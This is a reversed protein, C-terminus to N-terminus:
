RASGATETTPAETTGEPVPVEPQALRIGAYVMQRMGGSFRAQRSQVRGGYHRSIELGFQIRNLVPTLRSRRCHELYDEFLTDKSITSAEDLMTNEALYLRATNSELLHRDTARTSLAPIRFHGRETLRRLGDMSRNFIGPLEEGLRAELGRDIRDAPVAWNFPIIVLRRRLGSSRDMFQPIENCAFILRATPKLTIGEPRHKIDVYIPDGGTYMKLYEESAKDSGSIEGAINALKGVTNYLHFQRGFLDLPVHSVNERGLLRELVRLCVGKGNQGEGVLIVAHQYRYDQIACYGMWETWFDMREQDGEFVEELFADWRPCTATHDYRFPLAITSFWYPNHERLAETSGGLLAAVSLVGNEFTVTSASQQRTVLSFPPDVEDAVLSFARILNLVDNHLKTTVPPRAPMIGLRDDLWRYVEADIAASPVSRYHTSTWEHWRGRWYVLPRDAHAEIFQRALDQPRIAPAPPM